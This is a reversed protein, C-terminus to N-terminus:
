NIRMASFPYGHLFCCFKMKTLYVQTIIICIDENM